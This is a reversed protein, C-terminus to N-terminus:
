RGTWVPARKEVFARPGEKFDETTRLRAMAADTALGAEAESLYAAERALSMSEQVALPANGAIRGALALAEGLVDESLAMKNILGLAYARPADIPDGTAVMELAVHRPIARPLRSLGGAAAM